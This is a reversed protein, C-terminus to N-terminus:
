RDHENERERDRDEAMSNAKISAQVIEWPIVRRVEDACRAHMEGGEAAAKAAYNAAEVTYTIEWLGYAAYQAALGACTASDSFSKGAYAREWAAWSADAAAEAADEAAARVADISARNDCWAEALEIAALPRSESEPVYPLALRACACAARVALKRAVGARVATRLLVDGRECEQWERETM